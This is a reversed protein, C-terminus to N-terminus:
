EYKLKGLFTRQFRKLEDQAEAYGLKAAEEFHRYATELDNLHVLIGGMNHLCNAHMEEHWWEGYELAKGTNHVFSDSDNLFLSAVAMGHLADSCPWNKWVDEFYSYAKSLNDADKLDSYCTVWGKEWESQYYLERVETIDCENTNKLQLLITSAEELDSIVADDYILNQRRVKAWRYLCKAYCLNGKVTQLKLCRGMWFRMKEFDFFDPGFASDGMYIVALCMCGDEEGKIADRILDPIEDEIKRCDEAVFLEMMDSARTDGREAAKQFWEIAADDKQELCIEGMLYWAAPEDKVQVKQLYDIATELNKEVVGDVGRRYIEGLPLNAREDGQDAAEKFLPFAKADSEETGKGLYYMSGLFYASNPEPDDDSYALSYLEFAKEENVEVGYGKEYFVGLPLAAYLCGEQLAKEYNEIAEDWMGKLRYVEGINYYVDKRGNNAAFEFLMLAKEYDQGIIEGYTYLIGLQVAAGADGLEVAAEYYGICESCEEEGFTGESYEYALRYMACTNRQYKLIKKYLEMAKHINKEAGSIGFQYRRALEYMAVPNKKGAEAIVNDFEAAEYSKDYETVIPLSNNLLIDKDM